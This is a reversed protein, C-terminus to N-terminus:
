RQDDRSKYAERLVEKPFNVDIGEEAIILKLWKWFLEFTFEFRQITADVVAQHADIPDCVVEELRKLVDSLKKQELTLKLKNNNKM